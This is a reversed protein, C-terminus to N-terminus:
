QLFECNYEKLLDQWKHKCTCTHTPIFKYLNFWAVDCHNHLLLPIFKYKGWTKNHWVRMRQKLWLICCGPVIVIGFLSTHTTFLSYYLQGQVIYPDPGLRWTSSIGCMFKVTQYPEVGMSEGLQQNHLVTTHIKNWFKEYLHVQATWAQTTSPGVM